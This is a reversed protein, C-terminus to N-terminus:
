VQLKAGSHPVSPGPLDRENRFRIAALIGLVVFLALVVLQALKFPMESQTPALEKLAPIKAFSQVVAVFVNFYLAAVSCAVYAKRWAGALHRVYLAYLAVSLLILSLIGVAHSPMFRHVPFFFGTVSTLVTTALFLATWPQLKKGGLLGYLVVVGSFIGILSIVVHTLTFLTLIM